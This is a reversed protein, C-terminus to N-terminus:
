RQRSFNRPNVLLLPLSLRPRELRSLAKEKRIIHWCHKARPSDVSCTSDVRLLRPTHHPSRHTVSIQIDQAAQSQGNACENAMGISPLRSEIGVCCWSQNEGTMSPSPIRRGEIVGSMNGPNVYSWLFAARGLLAKEATEM